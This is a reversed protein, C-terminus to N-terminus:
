NLLDHVSKLLVQSTCPKKLFLSAGANLGIEIDDPTAKASLLIVPIRGAHEDARIATILALGDMHPMVWDTIVLDPHQEKFYAAGQLGNMAWSVNYGASKLIDVLIEGLDETDEVLLISRTM